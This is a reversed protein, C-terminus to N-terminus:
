LIWLLSQISHGCSFCVISYHPTFLSCSVYNMFRAYWARLQVPTSCIFVGPQLGHLCRVAALAGGVDSLIMSCLAVPRVAAFLLWPSLQHCGVCWGCCLWASLMSNGFAMCIASLLLSVAWLLVVCVADFKWPWASLQYYCVWLGGCLWAAFKWCLWQWKIVFSWGAGWLWWLRM